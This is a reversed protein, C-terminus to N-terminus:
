SVPKRPCFLWSPSLPKEDSKPSVLRASGFLRAQIALKPSTKDLASAGIHSWRPSGRLVAQCFSCAFRGGTCDQDLLEDPKQTSTTGTRVKCVYLTRSASCILFNSQTATRLVTCSLWLSEAHRRCKAKNDPLLISSDFLMARSNM